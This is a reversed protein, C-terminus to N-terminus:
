SSCQAPRNVGHDGTTLLRAATRAGDTSVILAGVNHEGLAAVLERVTADPAITIVDRSPKGALVEHIRM